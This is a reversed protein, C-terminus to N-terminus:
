SWKHSKFKGKIKHGTKCKRWKGPFTSVNSWGSTSKELSKKVIKQTVHQDAQQLENCCSKFASKGLAGPGWNKRKWKALLLCCICATVLKMLEHTKPKDMFWLMSPPPILWYFIQMFQRSRSFGKLTRSNMHVNDWIYMLGLIMLQAKIELRFQM